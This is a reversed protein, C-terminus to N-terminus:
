SSREAIMLSGSVAAKGDVSATANFKWIDRKNTVLECRYDIRDGPLIQRRFRFGDVGVLMAISDDVQKTLRGLIGALQALGEVVLVGPMIPFDPFHGQIAPESASVLKYGEISQGPICATVRDVLLIPYRHPILNKIAVTDLTIPEVANTEEQNDKTM